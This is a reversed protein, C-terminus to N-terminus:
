ERDRMTVGLEKKVLEAFSEPKKTTPHRAPHVGPARIAVYEAGTMLTERGNRLAIKLNETQPDLLEILEKFAEIVGNRFQPIELYEPFYRTKQMKEILKTDGGGIYRKYLNEWAQIRVPEGKGLNLLTVEPRYPDLTYGEGKMKRRVSNRIVNAAGKIEEEVSTIYTYAYEHDALGDFWLYKAGDKPFIAYVTGWDQATYYGPSMFISNGRRADVGLEELAEDFFSQISADLDTPVRNKRPKGVFAPTTSKKVGRYFVRNTDQYVKLIQKCDRKIMKIADDIAIEKQLSEHIVDVFQLKM